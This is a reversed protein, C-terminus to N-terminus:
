SYHSSHYLALHKDLNNKKEKMQVIVAKFETSNPLCIVKTMEQTISISFFGPPWATPCTFVTTVRGSVPWLQWPDTRTETVQGPSLKAPSKGTSPSFHPPLRTYKLCPGQVHYRLHPVHSFLSCTYYTHPLASLALVRGIFRNESCM